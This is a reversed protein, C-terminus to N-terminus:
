MGPEEPAPEEGEAPEEPAPEEGEAPEEPEGEGEGEGPAPAVVVPLDPKVEGSEPPGVEPAEPAAPEEPVAPADDDQRRYHNAPHALALGSLYLSILLLKNLSMKISEPRINEKYL